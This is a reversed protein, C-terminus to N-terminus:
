FLGDLGDWTKESRRAIKGVIVLNDRDFVAYVVRWNGVRVRYMPGTLKTVGRPRPNLPLGRLAVVVRDLDRGRVGALEHQARSSLEVRYV